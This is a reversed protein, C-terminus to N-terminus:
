EITDTIMTVFSGAGHLSWDVFLLLDNRYDSFHLEVRANEM